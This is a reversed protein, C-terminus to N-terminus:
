KDLHHEEHGESGAPPVIDPTRDKEKGGQPPMARGMMGERMTRMNAMMVAMQEHMIRMRAKMTLDTMGKQMANLEDMMARMDNQMATAAYGMMPCDMASTEKASIGSQAEAEAAVPAFVIGLLLTTVIPKFM